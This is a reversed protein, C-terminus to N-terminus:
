RGEGGEERQCVNRLEELRLARVLGDVLLPETVKGHFRIDIDDNTSADDDHNSSDEDRELGDYITAILPLLAPCVSQAQGAAGDAIMKSLKSLGIDRKLRGQVTTPSM